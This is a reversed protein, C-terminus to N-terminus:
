RPSRRMLSSMVSQAGDAVVRDTVEGDGGTADDREPLDAGLERGVARDLRAAEDDRGAEDVERRAQALRAVLV